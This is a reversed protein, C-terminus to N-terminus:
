HRSAIQLWFSAPPSDSTAFLIFPLVCHRHQQYDIDAIRVGYDISDSQDPIASDAAAGFSALLLGGVLMAYTIKKLM